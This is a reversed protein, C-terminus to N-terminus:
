YRLVQFIFDKKKKIWEAMGSHSGTYHDYDGLYKSVICIKWWFYKLKLESQSGALHIM